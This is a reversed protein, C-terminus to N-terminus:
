PYDDTINVHDVRPSPSDGAREQTQDEDQLYKYQAPMQAIEGTM